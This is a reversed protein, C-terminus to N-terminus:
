VQVALEMPWTTAGLISRVLAFTPDTTKAPVLGTEPHTDLLVSVMPMFVVAGCDIREGVKWFIFQLRALIVVTLKYAVVVVTFMECIIVAGCPPENTAFVLM